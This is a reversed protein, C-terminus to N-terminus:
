CEKKLIGSEDIFKEASELQESLTPTEDIYIWHIEPNRRFWTLQRKAYRRTDRKLNEICDLLPADDLLYPTFEKYGIAQKATGGLDEKLYKEAEYLLGNALMADVRRDIRDYLYARSIASLGVIAPTYRAPTKRSNEVQYSMTHGTVEYVELARIVRWTNNPHLSEATKPDIEMLRSYMAMSGKVVLEDMLRKHVDRNEENDLLEINKLVSDLYLGTGGVMVVNKGRAYIEPIIRDAEAKYKAVSFSEGRKVTGIMHHPIGQMEAKTPKATGIEMGEYIQMSDFSLIEANYHKALEISLATKGSATPGVVAIVPIKEKSM